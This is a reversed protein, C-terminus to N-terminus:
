SRHVGASATTAVLAESAGLGDLFDYAAVRGMLACLIAAMPGHIQPGEGRTWDTDVARWQFRVLRRTVPITFRKPLSWTSDAAMASATPDADIGRGLALAIDHHHVIADILHNIDTTGLVHQHHGPLTGVEALLQETTRAAAWITTVDNM